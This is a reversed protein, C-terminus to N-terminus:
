IGDDLRNQLKQGEREMNERNAEREEDEVAYDEPNKVDYDIRYDNFAHREGYGADFGIEKGADEETEDIPDFMHKDMM